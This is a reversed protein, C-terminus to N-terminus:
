KKRKKRPPTKNTTKGIGARAKNFEEVFDVDKISPTRFSFITKRKENTISFDGLTIVDMGILIDCSKLNVLEAANIGQVLTKQTLIMDIKYTAVAKKIKGDAGNIHTKGSPKLGIEKVVKPTICTSTAGTDWVAKYIKAKATNKRITGPIAIAVDTSLIRVIGTSKNTFAQTTLVLKRKDM